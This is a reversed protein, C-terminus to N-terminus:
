ATLMEAESRGVPSTSPGRRDRAQHGVVRRVMVVSNRRGPREARPSDKSHIVDDGGQSEGQKKRMRELVNVIKEGHKLVTGAAVLVYLWQIGDFVDVLTETGLRGVHAQILIEIAFAALLLSPLVPLFSRLTTM